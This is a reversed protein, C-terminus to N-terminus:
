RGFLVSGQTLFVGAASAIMLLSLTAAWLARFGVVAVDKARTPALSAIGGIFIGLSAIHAFGCLAYTALIASRKDIIQGQALMKALDQYATVETVVVREGILRAIAPADQPNIGLLLTLPYFLYGLVGQLTFDVSIGLASNVWGGILTTLLNVLGVLGLVALLMTVIGFVMKGGDTAGNMFSEISTESPDHWATVDAGMTEPKEEEPFILKAMVIGAPWSLLTASVLHGAINPFTPLLILVYFALVSSATNGMMSTMITCLESRTMRELYPKVTLASEVGVFLNSTACLSEAGSLRMWRTFLKSFTQILRPLINFHYLLSFLASFFVITPLSQFALIFGISGQTGPPQALPGFLFRGGEGAVDVLKLVIGNILLFFTQGAPVAFIFAAIALQLTTGWIVVRWNVVRRNTSFLWAIGMFAFMGILSILNYISM